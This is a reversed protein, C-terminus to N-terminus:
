LFGVVPFRQIIYMYCYNCFIKSVYETEALHDKLNPFVSVIQKALDIKMEESPKEKYKELLINCCIKM